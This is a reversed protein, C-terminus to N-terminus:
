PKTGARVHANIEATLEDAAIRMAEVLERARAPNNNELFSRALVRPLNVMSEILDKQTVAPKASM